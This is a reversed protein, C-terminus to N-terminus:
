ENDDASKQSCPLQFNEDDDDSIDSYIGSATPASVGPRLSVCPLTFDMPHSCIGNNGDNVVGGNSEQTIFLEPVDDDELSFLEMM